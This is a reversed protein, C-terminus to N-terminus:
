HARRAVGQRTQAAGASGLYISMHRTQECAQVLASACVCQVVAEGVSVEGRADLLKM